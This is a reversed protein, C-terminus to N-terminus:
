FALYSSKEQQANLVREIQWLEFAARVSQFDHRSFFGGTQPCKIGHMGLAEASKLNEDQDDIFVTNNPDLQYSDLLHYFIAPDPKAVGAHGSVVAGDFLEFIDAYKSRVYDFSEADWNSLVYVKHGQKICDLVFALGEKDFSVTCALTKPDFVSRTVSTIFRKEASNYAKLNNEILRDVSHQIEVSSATGRFWHLMAKPLLRGTEDRVNNNEVDPLDVEDLAKFFLDRPNYRMALTCYLMKLLGVQKAMAFSSLNVLVGGLDFIINAGQWGAPYLGLSAAIFLPTYLLPKAARKSLIQKRMM